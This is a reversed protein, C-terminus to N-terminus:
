NSALRGRWSPAPQSAGRGITMDPVPATSDSDRMLWTRLRVHGCAPVEAGKRVKELMSQTPRLPHWADVVGRRRFEEMEELERAPDWPPGSAIEVRNGPAAAGPTPEHSVEHKFSDSNPDLEAIPLVCEGLPDDEDLLDADFVRVRVALTELPLNVDRWDAGNRETWVPNLTQNKGPTRLTWSVGAPNLTAADVLDVILYPDSTSSGTLINKDSALLNRCAVVHLSVTNFKMFLPVGFPTPAPISSDVQFNTMENECLEKFTAADIENDHNFLQYFADADVAYVELSASNSAVVTELCRNWIKLACLLNISDGAKILREKMKHDLNFDLDNGLKKTLFHKEAASLSRGSLSFRKGNNSNEEGTYGEEVPALLDQKFLAALDDGDVLGSGDAASRAKLLDEFYLATSGAASGDLVILMESCEDDQCCVLECPEFSTPNLLPFLKPWLKRNMSQFLKVEGMRVSVIYESVDKRLSTSM